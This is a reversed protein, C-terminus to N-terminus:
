RDAAVVTPRASVSVTQGVRAARVRLDGNGTLTILDVLPHAVRVGLEDATGDTLMWVTDKM